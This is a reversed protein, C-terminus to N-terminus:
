KTKSFIKLQEDNYLKHKWTPLITSATETTIVIATVEIIFVLSLGNYYLIIKETLRLQFIAKLSGYCCAPALRRSEYWRVSTDVHDLWIALPSSIHLDARPSLSSTGTMEAPLGKTSNGPWVIKRRIWFTSAKKVGEGVLSSAAGQYGFIITLIM